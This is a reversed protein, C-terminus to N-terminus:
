EPGFWDAALDLWGANNTEVLEIKRSRSWGKIEKERRIASQVDSTTEFHVLRHVRYRTAFGSRVGHRHEWIRRQLDSTVGTYLVRSHSALLYVYYTKAM